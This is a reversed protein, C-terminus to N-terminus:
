EGKVDKEKELNKLAKSAAKAGIQDLQGNSKDGIRFIM